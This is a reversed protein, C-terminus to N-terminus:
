TLATWDTERLTNADYAAVGDLGIAWVHGGDVITRQVVTGHRSLRVPDSLGAGTLRVALLGSGSGGGAYPALILDGALTFAHHDGEGLAFVGPLTMRDLRRPDSSQSVDFVSLQMGTTRGADDADQGLGILRGPGAPSLYASYGPIKLEGVSRPARPDSLDLVYLPDTRRFTVVYGLDGLFRVAYIQEGRGLGDVRGVSVLRNGDRTLVSVLSDSTRRTPEPLTPEPLTPEPLTPEPLTPEPLTPEPLTPPAPSTVPEDPTVGSGDMSEPIDVPRPGPVPGAADRTTAVRLHGDHADLSFQNLLRGPVRGGAVYTLVGRGSRDFAYLRTTQEGSAGDMANVASTGVVVQDHDAYVTAASALVATTRRAALGDGRLDATLLTVTSAGSPETPIAVDTCAVLRETRSAGATTTFRAQPLWDDIDTRDLRSRDTGDGERPGPMEYAFTPHSTLTLEAVGDIMRAGAASADVTLSSVLRPRAPDTVDIQDLRTAPNWPAITSPSIDGAARRVGSLAESIVLVTDGEVLLSRPYGILEISGVQRVSGTSDDTRMLRLYTDRGPALVALLDSGVRKALDAEDVGAVQVTTGTRSTLAQSGSAADGTVDGGAQERAAPSSTAADVPMGWPPVDDQALTRYRDLLAACSDVTHLAVPAADELSLDGAEAPAAPRDAGVLLGGALALATLAGLGSSIRSGAM